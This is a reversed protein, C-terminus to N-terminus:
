KKDLFEWSMPTGRSIKQNVKKGLIKDFHKPLLGKGPRIIRINKNTLQEDKDIDKIVYISRRFQLGIKESETVGYKITGLAQWTKKSEDVLLKLENPEISFSSDVGGDNRDLTFHKEVITAGHSIAALAAGIGVTHDSLGVECNFKKRLDPITLVNSNEPSAPYASTCKLLAFQDCNEEKLVNVADEIESISALGTSIIIPKKTKAVKRILPLHVNEYSAIKYAPVNLKELFDVATEDFPTSFCIIDLENCRKIIKETWEWPTHAEDYLSHLTNGKWLSDESLIQFDKKESNITLTDATYTQLKLMHAGSKAAQEVLMMARDLSKNHNGSMEAVILPHSQRSIKYKGIKM